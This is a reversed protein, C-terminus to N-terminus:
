PGPLPGGEDLGRAREAAGLTTVRPGQDTLLVTHEFQATRGGDVTVVTWGDRRTRAAPRGTCVIPEVTLAMGAVLRPGRRRGVVHSVHPATHMARGIGHGGYDPVVAFGAATVFPEIAQGVASLRAGTVLARIGRWMAAETVAMLRAAEDDVDGVGFTRSTDGFYGDKDVAVDVNIVDGDRLWEDRRPVGHCVVRGISTCVAGPFPVQHPPGYGEAASRAGVGAMAARAVEDLAATSVGPAIHAAVADLVDAAARGAALLPGIQRPSLIEM